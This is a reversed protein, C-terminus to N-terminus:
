ARGLSNLLRTQADAGPPSEIPVGFMGSDRILDMQPELITRCTDVLEPDLTTEQGTATALDWGHVVVDVLRHGLYDAGPIPGYSVACPADLAGPVEFAAGAVEASRRYEAAPDSGLVDGELADGMDAISKGSVLEAAWLNESVVHNTLERVDWEGCPTRGEWQDPRIGSVIRGTADLARRHLSPLSDPSIM